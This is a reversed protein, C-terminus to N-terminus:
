PRRRQRMLRALASSLKAHKEVLGEYVDPGGQDRAAGIEEQIKVIDQELTPIDNAYVGDAGVVDSAVQIRLADRETQLDSAIQRIKQIEQTAEDQMFKISQEHKGQMEAISAKLEEISAQAADSIEVDGM